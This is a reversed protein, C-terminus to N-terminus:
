DPKKTSFRELAQYLVAIKQHTSRIDRSKPNQQADVNLRVLKWRIEALTQALKIRDKSRLSRIDATLGQIQTSLHYSDSTTPTENFVLKPTQIDPKPLDTLTNILSNEMKDIFTDLEDEQETYFAIERKLAINKRLIEGLDAELGRFEDAYITSLRVDERVQNLVETSGLMAATVADAHQISHFRREDFKRQLVTLNRSQVRNDRRLQSNEEELERVREQLGKLALVISEEREERM